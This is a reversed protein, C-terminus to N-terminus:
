TALECERKKRWAAAAPRRDFTGSEHYTVGDQMVRVRARYAVSGDKRKRAGITGM